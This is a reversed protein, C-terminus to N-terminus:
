EEVVKRRRRDKALWWRWGFWCALHYGKRSRALRRKRGCWYCPFKFDPPILTNSM